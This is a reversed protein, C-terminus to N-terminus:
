KNEDEKTSAGTPRIMAEREFFRARDFLVLYGCHMCELALVESGMSLLVGNKSRALSLSEDGTDHFLFGPNKTRCAPCPDLDIGLVRAADTFIATDIVPTVYKSM